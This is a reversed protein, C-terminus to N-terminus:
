PHKYITQVGGVREWSVGLVHKTFQASFGDVILKEVLLAVAYFNESFSNSINIVM